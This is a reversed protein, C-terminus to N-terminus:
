PLLHQRSARVPGAELGYPKAWCAVPASLRRSRKMRLEAPYTKVGEGAGDGRHPRPAVEGRQPSTFRARQGHRKARRREKGEDNGPKDRCDLPSALGAEVARNSARFVDPCSSHSWPVSWRQRSAQPTRTKSEKEGRVFPIARRFACDMKTRMEQPSACAGRPAGCRRNKRWVGPRAKAQTDGSEPLRVASLLSLPGSCAEM